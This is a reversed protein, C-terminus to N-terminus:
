TRSHGKRKGRAMKIRGEDEMIEEMREQFEPDRIIRLVANFKPPYNLNESVGRIITKYVKRKNEASQMAISVRQDEGFVHEVKGGTKRPAIKKATRIDALGVGYFKAVGEATKGKKAFHRWVSAKPIYDKVTNVNWELYKLFGGYGKGFVKQMDPRLYKWIFGGNYGSLAVNWDGTRDYLNKLYKACARASKLPDTREDIGGEVKLGFKAATAKTFQYPGVAAAHSKAELNWHSEPIALYLYDQPVGVEAFIRKLEPVYPQMKVYARELSRVLSPNESKYQRYWFEEVGDLAEKGIKVPRRELPGLVKEARKINEEPVIRGSDTDVEDFVSDPSDAKRKMRDVIRKLLGYKKEAYAAGLGAAAFGTWKLFDRRSMGTKEKEREPEEKKKGIRAPKQGALFKQAEFKEM